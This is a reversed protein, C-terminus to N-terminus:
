FLLCRVVFDKMGSIILEFYNKFGIKVLFRMLTNFFLMDHLNNFM